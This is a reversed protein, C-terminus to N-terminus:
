NSACVRKPEAPRTSPPTPKLMQSTRPERLESGVDAFVIFGLLVTLLWAGVLSRCVVRQRGALFGGSRGWWGCRENGYRVNGACYLLATFLYTQGSGTRSHQANNYM